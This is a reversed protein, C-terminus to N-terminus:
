RDIDDGQYQHDFREPTWASNPKQDPCCADYDPIPMITTMGTPKYGTRMSRTTCVRGHIASWRKCMPDTLRGNPPISEGARVSLSAVSGSADNVDIRLVPTAQEINTSCAMLSVLRIRTPKFGPPIEVNIAHHVGVAGCGAGFLAHCDSATGTMGWEVNLMQYVAPSAPPTPLDGSTVIGTVDSYRKLMLPGDRWQGAYARSVLNLNALLTRPTLAGLASGM